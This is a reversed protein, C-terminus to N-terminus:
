HLSAPTPAPKDDEHLACSAIASVASEASPDGETARKVVHLFANVMYSLDCAPSERHDDTCGNAESSGAAKVGADSDTLTIIIKM